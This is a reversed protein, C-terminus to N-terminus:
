IVIHSKTQEFYAEKVEEVSHVIFNGLSQNSKLKVPASPIHFYERIQDFKLYEEDFADNDICKDNEERFKFSNPVRIIKVTVIEQRYSIRIKKM